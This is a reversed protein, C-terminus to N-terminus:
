QSKRIIEEMNLIFFVYMITSSGAMNLMIFINLLSKYKAHIEDLLFALVKIKKEFSAGDFTRYFSYFNYLCISIAFYFLRGFMKIIMKRM